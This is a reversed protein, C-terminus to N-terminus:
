GRTRTIYESEKLRLMLSGFASLVRVEIRMRRSQRGGGGREVGAGDAGERRGERGKKSGEERDFLM